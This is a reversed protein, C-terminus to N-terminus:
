GGSGFRQALLMEMLAAALLLWVAAKALERPAAAVAAAGPEPDNWGDLVAMPRGALLSEIDALEVRKLRGEGPNVNVAIGWGTADSEDLHWRYFGPNPLPATTAKLGVDDIISAPWKVGQEDVLQVRGPAYPSSSEFLAPDGVLLQRQQSPRKAVHGVAGHILPVFEPKAPLGNWRSDASTACILVRGDGIQSEVWAPDAGIKLIIKENDTVKLRVYRQVKTWLLGAGPGQGIALADVFDALMPHSTQPEIFTDNGQEPAIIKEFAVSLVGADAALVRNYHALDVRPGMFIILGGGSQVYQRLQQLTGEAVRSVDALVVAAFTDLPTSPLALESIVVPEFLDTPEATGPALAQRLYGTASKLMERSPSGDVLLVPLQQRAQVIVHRTSDIPLTDEELELSM